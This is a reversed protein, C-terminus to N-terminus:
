GGELRMEIKIELGQPRFNEGWNKKQSPKGRGGLKDGRIPNGGKKGIIKKFRGQAGM